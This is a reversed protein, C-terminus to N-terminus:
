HITPEKKVADRRDAVEDALKLLGTSTGHRQCCPILGHVLLRLALGLLRLSTRLTFALHRWYGEGADRPHALFLRDIASRARKM